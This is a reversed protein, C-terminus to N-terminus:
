PPLCANDGICVCVRVDISIESVNTKTKTVAEKYHILLGLFNEKKLSQLHLILPVAKFSMRHLLTPFNLRGLINPIHEIQYENRKLLVFNEENVENIQKSHNFHMRDITNFSNLTIQRHITRKAKILSNM